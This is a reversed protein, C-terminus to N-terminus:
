MLAHVTYRTSVHPSEPFTCTPLMGGDLSMDTWVELLSIHLHVAHRWGSIHQRDVSIRLTLAHRWASVHRGGTLSLIDSCFLCPLFQSLSRSTPQLPPTCVHIATMLCNPHQVFFFTYRHVSLSSLVFPILFYPPSFCRMCAPHSGHPLQPASCFLM